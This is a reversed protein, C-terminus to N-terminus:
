QVKLFRQFDKKIIKGLQRVQPNFRRQAQIGTKFNLQKFLEQQKQISLKLWNM